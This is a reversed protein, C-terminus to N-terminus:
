TQRCQKRSQAGQCHFDRVFTTSVTDLTGGGGDWYEKGDHMKNGDGSHLDGLICITYPFISRLIRFSRLNERLYFVWICYLFCHVYDPAFRRLVSLLM